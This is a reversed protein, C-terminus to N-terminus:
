DFLVEFIATIIRSRQPGDGESIPILEEYTRALELLVAEASEPGQILSQALRSAPDVLDSAPEVSTGEPALAALLLLLRQEALSVSPWLTLLQGVQSVVADRVPGGYRLEYGRFDALDQSCGVEFLTYLLHLRRKGSLQAGAAIKAIFKM